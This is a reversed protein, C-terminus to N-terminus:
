ALPKAPAVGQRPRTRAPIRALIDSFNLSYDKNVQVRAYSERRSEDFVWRPRLILLTSPERLSTWALLTEADPDKIKL